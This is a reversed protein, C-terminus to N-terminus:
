FMVLSLKCTKKTKNKIAIVAPQFASLRYHIIYESSQDCYLKQIHEIDRGSLGERQGLESLSVRSDRPLITAGGNRSFAYATYHMISGYDYSIANTNAESSPLREFQDRLGVLCLSLSSYLTNNIQSCM